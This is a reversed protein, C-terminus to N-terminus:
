GKLLRLRHTHLTCRMRHGPKNAERDPYGWHECCTQDSIGECRMPRRDNRLKNIASKTGMTRRGIFLLFIYCRGTIFKWPLRKLRAANKLRMQFSKTNLAVIHM